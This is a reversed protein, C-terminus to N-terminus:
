PRVRREFKEHLRDHLLRQDEESLENLYEKVLENARFTEARKVASEFEEQTKWFSASTEFMSWPKPRM